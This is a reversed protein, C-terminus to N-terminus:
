FNYEYASGGLKEKILQRARNLQSYITNEKQKLMRAIEPVSYDQYYFLYIVEKYKQPITLIVQMLENEEKTEFPLEVDDLSDVNRYWYSKLLDKCKNISVRILWAKEHAPSQLKDKNKILSLFVEQFVDDVDSYNKLYLFCIRRIMDSYENVAYTIYDNLDTVQKPEEPTNHM